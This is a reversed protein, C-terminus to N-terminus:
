RASRSGLAPSSASRSSSRSTGPSATVRAVVLLALAWGAYMALVFHRPLGRQGLAFAAVIAGRPPQRMSSASRVRRHTSTTRSSSRAAARQTRVPRGHDACRRAAHGLALGARARVRLGRAARPAGVARGLREIPRADPAPGNGGLSRLNRCRRPVLRGRAVSILVGAVAPGILSSLPRVFQDLSNAQALLERPVIEPVISGFAPAFLADGVGTLGALVALEWLRLRGAVALTGVTGISAARIVDAAIMLKRRELRDTLVGGALLVGVMPAVYAASIWGLASPSNSLEYTQWALAVLFIGDGVLSVTM